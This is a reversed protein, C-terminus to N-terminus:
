ESKNVQSNNYVNVEELVLLYLSKEIQEFSKKNKPHLNM